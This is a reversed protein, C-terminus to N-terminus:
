RLSLNKAVSKPRRTNLPGWLEPIPNISFKERKDLVQCMNCVNLNTNLFFAGPEQWYFGCEYGGM